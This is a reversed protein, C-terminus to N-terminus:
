FHTRTMDSCEAAFSLCEYREKQTSIEMSHAHLVLSCSATLSLMTHTPTYVTYRLACNDLGHKGPRSTSAIPVVVWSDKGIAQWMDGATKAAQVEAQKDESALGVTPLSLLQPHPISLSGQSVPTLWLTILCLVLVPVTNPATKVTDTEM